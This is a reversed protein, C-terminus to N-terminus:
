DNMKHKIYMGIGIFLSLAGIYGFTKKKFLDTFSNVRNLWGKIFAKFNDNPRINLSQLFPKVFGRVLKLNNALYNYYDKRLLKFEDHFQNPDVSNLAAITKPGIIGDISLGKRFTTNLIAQVMKGARSVGANVAHDFVINAVAQSKIHDGGVRDWFKPKYVKAADEITIVKLDDVDIDQDGDKDYGYRQWTAITIGLNTEKGADFKHNSWGGEHKILTDIYNEFSAM